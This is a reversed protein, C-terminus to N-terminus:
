QDGRLGDTGQIWQLHHAVEEYCDQTSVLVQKLRQNEVM